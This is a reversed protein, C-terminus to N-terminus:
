PKLLDIQLENKTEELSMTMSVLKQQSYGAGAMCSLKQTEAINALNRPLM